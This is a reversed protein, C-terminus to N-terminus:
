QNNMIKEITKRNSKKGNKFVKFKRYIRKASEEYHFKVVITNSNNKMQCTIENTISNVFTEFGLKEFFALAKQHIAEEVERRKLAKQHSQVTFYNKTLFKPLQQKTTTTSMIERKKKIKNNNNNLSVVNLTNECAKM